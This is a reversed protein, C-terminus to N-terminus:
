NLTMEIANIKPVWAQLPILRKNALLQTIQKWSFQAISFRRLGKIARSVWYRQTIQSLDVDTGYILKMTGAYFTFICPAVGCFNYTLCHKRSRPEGFEDTGAQQLLKGNKSIHKGLTGM